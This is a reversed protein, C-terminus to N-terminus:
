HVSGDGTLPTVPGKFTNGTLVAETATLNKVFITPPGQDNSFKNNKFILEPSPQTVGETGIVIAASHNENNPGKELVDNEMILSGGNPLEVLYSSTGKDGDTIEDGILETRFARSKVNHAQKTETFKSHEIHLLAIHGVYIGHACSQDCSGNRTFESDVIKVTAQPSDGELIGEQNNIFRSHEVTLNKGEERIGAGNGDQVRARTFTLNRVTIDNGRIVFLAKGECTKDTIVAGAGRGVITLQNGTWVACDFYEGPEIEIVDGDKAAAAAASPAKLPQDPGV